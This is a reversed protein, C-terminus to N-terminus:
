ELSNLKFPLSIHKMAPCFEKLSLFNEIYKRYLSLEIFESGGKKYISM